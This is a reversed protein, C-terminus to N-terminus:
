IARGAQDPRPVGTTMWAGKAPGDNVRGVAWLYELIDGGPTEVTVKFTVQHDEM